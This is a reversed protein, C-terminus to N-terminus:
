YKCLLTYTKDLLYGMIILIYIIIIFGIFLIINM